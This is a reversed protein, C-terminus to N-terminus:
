HMQVDMVIREIRKAFNEWSLEVGRARAHESMRAALARDNRLGLIANEYLATNGPEILTAENKSLYFEIGPLRTTIVPVGCALAELIANNATADLMPMFFVDAQQYLHLLTEDSINHHVHVNGPEAPPNVTSSVIHFEIDPCNRMRESVALVTDYDRLWNGVSLCIFKGEEKRSADPRFYEVDIGHQLESLKERPLFRSLDDAQLRSLVIAHDLTKFVDSDILTHLKEPPQHFMTIIKPKKRKNRFLGLVKPLKNLSHEGDLYFVVDYGFLTVYMFANLEALFDDTCYV